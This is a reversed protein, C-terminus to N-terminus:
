RETGASRAMGKRVAAQAAALDGPRLKPAAQGSAGVPDLCLEALYPQHDSGFGPLVRLSLVRFEPGALIHDLPWRLVPNGAKWTTHLGRGERPDLVRGVRHLRRTVTEWPVANLDGMIIHPEADDRAALAAAMLQADREATSQGVQPPRPHIAYLRISQGSPMVAGTFVAPNRSGTLDQVQQGDLRLKSLLLVGYYNSQPQAAEFPMSASLPALEQEWWRDTEQFWALDPDAQQVMRLLRGDCRNTMQVNAELVRLRADAPCAAPVQEDEVPPAYRALVSADYACAASLAALLAWGTWGKGPLFLLLLATALMALLFQLRPFDLARIWWTDGSLAPLVTVAVGALAAVWLLFRFLM